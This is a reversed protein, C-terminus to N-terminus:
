AEYEEDEIEFTIDNAECSEIFSEESMLHECEAQLDRYLKRCMAEVTSQLAGEIGAADYQECVLDDWDENDLGAFIGAPETNGVANGEFSVRPWGGRSTRDSVSAYDGYDMIALYLAPYKEAYTQDGDKNAAMWEAVNIQGEFSAYDGQSYSLSFYIREVTIGEPAVDKKFWEEIYDWWDYDLAYECWKSYEKQFRNPDSSQLESATLHGDPKSTNM